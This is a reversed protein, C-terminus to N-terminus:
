TLSNVRYFFYILVLKIFKSKEKGFYGDGGGKVYKINKRVAEINFTIHYQMGKGMKEVNYEEGCGHYESRRKM